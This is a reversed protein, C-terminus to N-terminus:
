LLTCDQLLFPSEEPELIMSFTIQARSGTSVTTGRKSTHKLSLDLLSFFSIDVDADVRESKRAPHSVPAYTGPPPPQLPLISVNADPPNLNYASVAAHTGPATM